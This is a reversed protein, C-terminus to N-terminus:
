ANARVLTDGALIPNAREPITNRFVEISLVEVPDLANHYFGVRFGNPRLLPAEDIREEMKKKDVWYTIQEGERQFIVEQVQGRVASCPRALTADASRRSVENRSVFALTNEYGNVELVYGPPTGHLWPLPEPASNIVMRFGDISGTYKIRLRVKINKRLPITKLWVWTSPPVVLPMQDSFQYSITRRMLGNQFELFETPQATKETLELVPKWDSWQKRYEIFWAGAALGIGMFGVVVLAAIQYNKGLWKKAVYILTAKKALVPRGEAYRELDLCFQGADQYRQNKDLHLAKGVVSALDTDLYRNIKKPNSGTLKSEDPHQATLLWFLIVGLSYVDSTESAEETGSFVEPAMYCPTGPTNGSMTLTLDNKKLLKKALGFDMVVPEGGTRIMINSPKLDRHIIGREHMYRVAELIQRILWVAHVPRLPQFTNSLQQFNEKKIELTANVGNSIAEMSKPTVKESPTKGGVLLEWLTVGDVWEMALYPNGKDEGAELIRCINRHWLQSMMLAERQFREARVVSNKGVANMVKVAVQNGQYDRSKWVTGMGGEGAVSDLFFGGCRREQMEARFTIDLVAGVESPSMASLLAVLCLEKDLRSRWELWYNWRIDVSPNDLVIRVQTEEFEPSIPFVRNDKPLEACALGFARDSSGVRWGDPLNKILGALYSRSAGVYGAPIKGVFDTTTDHPKELHLFVSFEGNQTLALAKQFGKWYAESCLTWTKRIPTLEGKLSGAM